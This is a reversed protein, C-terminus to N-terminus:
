ALQHFEVDIPSSISREHTVEMHVHKDKKARDKKVKEVVVDLEQVKLHLQELKADSLQSAQAGLVSADLHLLSELVCTSSTDDDCNKAHQDSM